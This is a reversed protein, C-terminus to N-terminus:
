HLAPVGLERAKRGKDIALHHGADGSLIFTPFGFFNGIRHGRKFWASERPGAVLIGGGKIDETWLHLHIIGPLDGSSIIHSIEMNSSHHLSLRAM